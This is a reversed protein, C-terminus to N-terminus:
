IWGMINLGGFMMMSMMMRIMQHGRCTSLHRHPAEKVPLSCPRVRRVDDEKDNDEDDDDDDKKDDDDDDDKDNNDDDDEAYKM